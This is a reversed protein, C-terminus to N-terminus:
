FINFPIISVIRPYMIFPMIYNSLTSGPNFSWIKNNDENVYNINGFDTKDKEGFKADIKYPKQNYTSSQLPLVLYIFDSNFM